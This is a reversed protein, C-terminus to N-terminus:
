FFNIKDNKQFYSIGAFGYANVINLKRINKANIGGLAIIKKNTNLAILNFKIAGLFKSGKLTKFLKSLFIMEVGQKEKIKIEKISHASGIILFKKKKNMNNVNLKKNFSPLYVGDLNLNIALRINNSIFFKRKEKKCYNRIKQIIEKNYNVSYNRYIIAINKELNSIHQKDFESIFCFKKPLCIHIM